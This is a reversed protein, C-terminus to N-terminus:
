CLRNYCVPGLFWADSVSGSGHISGENNGRCVQGGASELSRLIM